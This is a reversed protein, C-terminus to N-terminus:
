WWLFKCMLYADGYIYTYYGNWLYTTSLRDYILLTLCKSLHICLWKITFLHEQHKINHQNFDYAVCPARQFTCDCRRMINRSGCTWTSGFEEMWKKYKELDESSVSKNVKKIANKFDEMTPPLELEEKPIMRIQEANLGSIRRRFSMMAADRCFYVFVTNCFASM